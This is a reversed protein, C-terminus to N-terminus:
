VSVKAGFEASNVDSISWAGGGPKTERIDPYYSYGVSLAKDSSDVETGALRAVSVISRTGADTKAAYPLPQVGFVTGATPTLNTMAYTDKDGVDPSEVYDTDSNPTAEDVLLYNDTSNGDSGDFQSSNGNGNPFLAEVRVDGLFSNTPSGGTGDCLYLDDFFWTSQAGGSSAGAAYLRLRDASANAANRTDGSFNIDTVGNVKVIAVGNVDDIIVKMEIYYWTNLSLPITGTALVTGNRTAQLFTGNFRLDVHLTGGDFFGFLGGPNTGPSGFDSSTLAAGVIWTAQANLVKILSGNSQLQLRSGGLRGAGVVAPAGGSTGASTWKQALQATAYHDWGDIFRLAM